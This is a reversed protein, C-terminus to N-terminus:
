VPHLKDGVVFEYIEKWYTVRPIFPNIYETNYHQSVLLPKLGHKLGYEANEPVDEVWFCGSGSYHRLLEDKNASKDCLVLKEFATYGFLKHINEWRAFRSAAMDPIASICHLVYGHEEHLKKIYKIADRMPAIHSLAASENFMKAMFNIKETPMDYKEDLNYSGPKPKGYGNDYMWTAFSHEWYGCVGDYDVIIVNDFLVDSM